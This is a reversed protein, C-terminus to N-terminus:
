NAGMKYIEADPEFVKQIKTLTSYVENDEEYVMQIGVVTLKGEKDTYPEYGKEYIRKVLKDINSQNGFKGIIIIATKEGPSLIPGESDEPYEEPQQEADAGTSADEDDYYDDIVEYDGASDSPSVNVREVETDTIPLNPNPKNKFVILYIATVIVVFAAAVVWMLNKTFWEAITNTVNGSSNAQPTIGPEAVPATRSVPYFHLDPLGFTDTNFNTSEPLFKFNGEFDKYLRGLGPFSIFEKKEIRNKLDAVYEEVIKEARPLPIGHKEKLFKVLVGDDIVLNKNFNLASSPPKIEGQVYDINADKSAKVFSGFGPLSVTDHEFLLEAIYTGPDIQMQIIKLKNVKANFKYFYGEIIYFQGTIIYLYM